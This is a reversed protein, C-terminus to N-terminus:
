ITGVASYVQTTQLFLPKLLKKYKVYITLICFLYYHGWSQARLCGVHSSCYNHNIAKYNLTSNGTIYTAPYCSLTVGRIGYRLLKKRLLEHDVTDFAKKLDLFIGIAYEKKEIAKTIHEMCEIVAFSTTRNARFGYQQEYLIINPSSTM